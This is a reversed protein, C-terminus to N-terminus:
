NPNYKSNFNDFAKKPSEDPHGVYYSDALNCLAMGLEAAQSPGIVITEERGFKITLYDEECHIDIQKVIKPHKRKLLDTIGAM